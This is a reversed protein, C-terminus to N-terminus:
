RVILSVLVVAFIVVTLIYATIVRRINRAHREAEAEYAVLSVTEPTENM